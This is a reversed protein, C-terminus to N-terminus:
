IRTQIIEIKEKESLNGPSQWVTKPLSLIQVMLAKGKIPPYIQQQSDSTAKDYIKHGESLIDSNM